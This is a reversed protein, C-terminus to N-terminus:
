YDREWKLGISTDGATGAEGELAVDDSLEVEVSVRGSGPELGQAVGVYVGEGVYTGVELGEEGVSLVDVGLARRMADIIGMSGGGGVLGSLAATARALELAQLPTLQGTGTGFLVRALIEEQPMPPQSLVEVAPDSAPGSIRVIATIAETRHVARVDILPDIETGGTFEVHGSELVFSRGLFDFTGRVVEFRGTVAPAGADGTIRVRGAWESDLGRGRVFARQPVDIAIDMEIPAAAPAAEDGAPPADVPVGASTVRVVEITEIDSALEDPIRADIRNMTIAGTLRLPVPADGRAPPWRLRATGSALATVEDRRVVTFRDLTVEMDLRPVDGQRSLLTGSFDATGSGTLVGDAARGTGDADEAAERADQARVRVRGRAGELDAEVDLPAMVLGLPVNEYIGGALVIRGALRPARLSGSVTVDLDLLGAMRHNDVPLLAWLAALEARGRARATLPQTPSLVPLGAQLPAPLAAELYLGELGPAVVRLTTEVRGNRWAGELDLVPTRDPDIDPLLPVARFAAQGEGQTGNAAFRLAGDLRGGMLGPAGALAGALALPFGSLRMELALSEGGRAGEVVMSGAGIELKLPAVALARGRGGLDIVAPGALRIPTQALRGELRRLSIRGAALDALAALAVTGDGLAGPALGVRHAQATVELADLPGRVTASVREATPPAGGAGAFGGGEVELALMAPPSWGGNVTLTRFEIGAARVGALAARGEVAPEAGADAHLRLAFTGAGALEMGALRGLAALNVVRGSLAADVAGSAALRAQGSGEVGLLAVELAGASLGGEAARALQAALRAPAGHITGSFRVPGSIGAGLSLAAQATGAVPVGAVVGELIRVEGGLRLARWFGSLTMEGEARGALAVGAIDSLAALAPVDTHLRLEAGGRDLWGAGTATFAGSAPELRFAELRTRGPAEGVSAARMVVREGLFGALAPDSAQRDPTLVAEVRATVDGALGAHILDAEVELVGRLGRGGADAAEQGAVELVADTTSEMIPDLVARLRGSVARGEVDLRGSFEARGGPATVALTTITFASLDREARAALTLSARSLPDPLELVAANGALEGALAIGPAGLADDVDLTGTFRLAGARVAMGAIKFGNAHRTLRGTLSLPGAADALARGPEVELAIDVGAGRRWSGAGTARVVGYDGAALFIRGRWDDAAGESMGRASIRGLAPDGTLAAILGPRGPAGDELTLDLQVTGDDPAFIFEADLRFVGGDVRAAHLAAEVRGRAVAGRGRAQLRVPQPGAIGPGLWVEELSLTDVALALPLAGIDFGAGPAAADRARPLAPVELGAAALRTVHLRGSLLAWPAWAAEVDRARLVVTDGERVEIAALRLSVPWDGGLGELTVELGSGAAIAALAREALAHRVPAFELAALLLLVAAQATVALGAIAVLAWRLGASAAVRAMGERLRATFERRAM